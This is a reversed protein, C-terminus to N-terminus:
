DALLNKVHLLYVPAAADGTPLASRLLRRKVQDPTLRPEKEWLLAAAGAVMPTAMSTGTMPIYAGAVVRSRRRNKGNFVFDPSLCSVVDVGPAKIAGPTPTSPRRGPGRSEQLCDEWAGVTVVKRSQAASALPSSGTERNGAAVVVLIGADWADAIARVLPERGQADNAGVSLNAVRINYKRRNEIIWRLGALAQATGGLGKENLIKVAVLSAGPAIGAYRGQSKAGNGALIGAVHTGHRLAPKTCGPFRSHKAIGVFLQPIGPFAPGTKHLISSDSHFSISFWGPWILDAPKGRFFRPLNRRALQAFLVFVACFYHLFDKGM